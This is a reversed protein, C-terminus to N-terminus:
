DPASTTANATTRSETAPETATGNGGTAANETTENETTANGTTENETTANETTENEVTANEAAGDATTSGSVPVGAAADPATANVARDYWRPRSVTVADMSAYEMRYSVERTEDGVTRDYSVVLVSVFGDSGVSAEARYDSVNAARPISEPTGTAVVRFPYRTDDVRTVRTRSANLYREVASSARQEFLGHGNEDIRVPYRYFSENRGDVRVFIQEGDAYATYQVLEDGDDDTDTAPTEGSRSEAARDRAYGTVTYRFHRPDEVEAQQWVGRWVRGSWDETGSQRLVIRYSRGAVADAHADALTEADTVGTAGIGPPFLTTEAGDDTPVSAGVVVPGSEAQAADNAAPSVGPGFPGLLAAVVLAVIVVAAVSAASVDGVGALTGDDDNGPVPGAVVPSADFHTAFLREADRRDIGYLALNRLDAPGVLTLGERAALRDIRPTPRAAVVADADAPVRPNRLRWASAVPALVRGEDALVVAGDDRVTVARGRSAYLDTVFATFAAEGLRRLWGEFTRVPVVPM